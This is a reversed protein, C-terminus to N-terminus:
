RFHNFDKGFDEFFVKKNKIKEINELIKSFERSNELMKFSFTAFNRLFGFFEAHKFFFKNKKKKVGGAFFFAGVAGGAQPM